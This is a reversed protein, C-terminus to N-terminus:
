WRRYTCFRDVVIQVFCVFVHVVLFLLLNHLTAIRVAVEVVAALFLKKKTLKPSLL